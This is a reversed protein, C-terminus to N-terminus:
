IFDKGGQFCPLEQCCHYRTILINERCGDVYIEDGEVISHVWMELILALFYYHIALLHKPPLIGHYNSSM